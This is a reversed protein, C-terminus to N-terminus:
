DAIGISEVEDYTSDGDIRHKIKVKCPGAGLLHAPSWAKGPVNQGLAARLRGLGINAGDASSISGSPTLDIITSWRCTVTDKGLEAALNPDLITFTIDLFTYYKSPDKKGQAQRFVVAKEDTGIAALYEGVPVPVRQTSMEGEVSQQMFANPDFTTM